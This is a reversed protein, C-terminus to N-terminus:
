ELDNGAQACLFGVAFNDMEGLIDGGMFYFSCQCGEPFEHVVKVDEDTADISKYSHMNVQSLLESPKSKFWTVAPWENCLIFNKGDSFFRMRLGSNIKKMFMLLM